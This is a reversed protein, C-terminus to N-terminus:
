QSLDPPPGPESQERTGASFDAGSVRVILYTVTAVLVVVFVVALVVLAVPRIRRQREYWDLKPFLVGELKDLLPIM